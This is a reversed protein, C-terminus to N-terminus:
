TMGCVTDWPRSSRPTARHPALRRSATPRVPPATRTARPARQPGASWSSAVLGDIPDEHKVGEQLRRAHHAPHLDTRREAEVLRGLRAERRVLHLPLRAPPNPPIEAAQRSLPKAGPPRARGPEGRPPAPVLERVVAVGAPRSAGRVVDALRLSAPAPRRVGAPPRPRRAQVSVRLGALTARTSGSSRRSTSSASTRTPGGPEKSCTRSRCSARAERSGM